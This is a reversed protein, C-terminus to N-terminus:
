RQWFKWWPARTQSFEPYASGALSHQLLGNMGDHGKPLPFPKKERLLLNHILFELVQAEYGHDHEFGPTPCMWASQVAHIAGRHAFEVKYVAQGTWSRHFYLFPDECYIFWKDEMAQPILGRRILRFQQDTYAKHLVLPVLTTFESTKWSDRTAPGRSM